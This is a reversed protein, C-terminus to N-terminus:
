SQEEQLYSSFDSIGITSGIEYFRRFVEFGGLKGSKSLDTCLEALDFPRGLPYSGFVSSQFYTLGYDIHNMGVNQSNKQYRILNGDRFLVNSEDLSGENKFVTMLALDSSKEFASEVDQYNIPLYSDGYIVGFKKGLKPLAKRIAGGTGLQQEGDKSFEIEIGFKSGDGLHSEILDSKHYICFVLKNFGASKLLAIQWDVFPKGQFDILCKPIESTLSGLRTALGGALVALTLV